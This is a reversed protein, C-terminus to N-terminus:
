FDILRAPVIVAIESIIGQHHVHIRDTIIADHSEGMKRRGGDRCSTRSDGDMVLGDRGHRRRQVALQTDLRTLVDEDEEDDEPMM